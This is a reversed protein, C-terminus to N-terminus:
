YRWAKADQGPPTHATIADAMEGIIGTMLTHQWGHGKEPRGYHFVADLHPAAHNEVEAQLDHVAMNLFYNDMDGVDIHLKGQLKPALEQWHTHLYARLDFGHDRMYAAVNHDIKGTHKDWLPKPYGDDGAPGAVAFWDDIQEGSRGHSGMAIEMQNDARMTLFPQGDVGRSFPREPHFWDGVPSQWQNDERVDFASDDDYANVLLYHRLDVPDPAAAWAGGFMEPHFLQLALSEWGGTSIGTLVRAYGAPITRFHADLYPILEQTVAAGYPGNNASDVAYSDDYYPTAHQFTVAIFRPFNPGNWAKYMEYGTMYNFSKLWAMLVPPVPKGDASFHLPINDGQGFHTQEYIVPYRVNPHSDYDKPLLITAGLFMPRGWFKSVLASQLRVHKIWPTDAPPPMPPLLKTLNLKVSFGATADLHVKTVESVLNGPSMGAHQGEGQDLHVWVVHGDSRRCQTYVNAVAQVFYDGAPLDGLRKNPYGEAAGALVETQGPPLATVDQGYFQPIGHIFAGLGLAERPEPSKEKAVFVLIRGTLPAPRLAAPFSVEFATPAAASAAGAGCLLGALLRICGLGFRGARRAHTHDLPM